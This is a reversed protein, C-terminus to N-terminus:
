WSILFVKVAINSLKSDGKLAVRSNKIAHDNTNGGTYKYKAIHTYQSLLEKIKQPPQKLRLQFSNGRQSYAASYAIRVGSADTPIDTPFHKVQTQNSWIQHRIARYRSTDTITETEDVSSYSKALFFSGGIIGLSGLSLLVLTAIKVIHTASDRRTTLSRKM